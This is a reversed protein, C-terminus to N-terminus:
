KVKEMYLIDNIKFLTWTENSTNLWSLLASHYEEELAFFPPKFEEVIRVNGVFRSYTEEIDVASIRCKPCHYMEHRNDTAIFIINCNLCEVKFKRM